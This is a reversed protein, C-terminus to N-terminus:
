SPCASRTGNLAAQPGQGLKPLCAPEVSVSAKCIYIHIHNGPLFIKTNM